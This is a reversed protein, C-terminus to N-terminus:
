GGPPTRSLEKMLACGVLGEVKVALIGCHPKASFLTPDRNCPSGSFPEWNESFGLFKLRAM